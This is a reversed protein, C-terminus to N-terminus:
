GKFGSTNNKKASANHSNQAHTAQRLNRWRNDSKITNRHDVEDLPWGGTVYVVALRHALYHRGDLTIVVYGDSRTCGAEAGTRIGRGRIKWFFLGTKREYKLAQLLREHTLTEQGRGTRNIVAFVGSKGDFM